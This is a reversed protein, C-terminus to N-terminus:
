AAAKKAAAGGAAKKRAGGAAKGAPAAAGGEGEGEAAAGAPKAAAAADEELVYAVCTRAPARVRMSQGRGCFQASPDAATAAPATFHEVDSCVRGEGGHARADSDLAVLYKGPRPAPVELGEYDKDPSFNFVFVLPGREAVLLQRGDDALTVWQTPHAIFGYADDAAM